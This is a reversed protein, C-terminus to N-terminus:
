RDGYVTLTEEVPPVQRSEIVSVTGVAAGVALAAGVVAAIVVGTLTGM